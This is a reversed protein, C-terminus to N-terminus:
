FDNLPSWRAPRQTSRSGDVLDMDDRLKDQATFSGGLRVPITMHAAEFMLIPVPLKQGVIGATSLQNTPNM